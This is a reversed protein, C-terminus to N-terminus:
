QDWEAKKLAIVISQDCKDLIGNEDLHFHSGASCTSVLDLISKAFYILGESNGNILLENNEKNEIVELFHYSINDKIALDDIEHLKTILDALGNPIHLTM